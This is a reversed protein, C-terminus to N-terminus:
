TYAVQAIDGGPSQKEAPPEPNQITEVTQPASSERQEKETSLVFVLAGGFVFIVAGVIIAKQNLGDSRKSYSSGYIRPCM